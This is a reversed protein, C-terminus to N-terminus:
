VLGWHKLLTFAAKESQKALRYRKVWTKGGFRNPVAELIADFILGHKRRFTSVTTNLCTDGLDQAEFTNLSKGIFFILLMRGAKAPAKKKPSTTSDPNHQGALAETNTPKKM